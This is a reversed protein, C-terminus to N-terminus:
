FLPDTHIRLRIGKGTADNRVELRTVFGREVLSNMVNICNRRTMKTAVALESYRTFCETTGQAVTQEFLIRMVAMQGPYLYRKWKRAFEEFFLPQSSGPSESATERDTEVGTEPAELVGAPGTSETLAQDKIDPTSLSPEDEQANDKDTVDTETFSSSFANEPPNDLIEPPSPPADVEVDESEAKPTAVSSASATAKDAAPVVIPGPRFTGTPAYFKKMVEDSPTVDEAWDPLDVARESKAPKKSM